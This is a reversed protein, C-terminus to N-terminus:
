QVDLNNQKGAIAHQQAEQGMLPGRLIGPPLRQAPTVSVGSREGQKEIFCVFHLNVPDHRDPAQVVPQWLIGHTELCLAVASCLHGGSHPLICANSQM